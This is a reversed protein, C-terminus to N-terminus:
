SLGRLPMLDSTSRDNSSFLFFLASTHRFLSSPLPLVLYSDFSLLVLLVEDRFIFSFGLAVMSMWRSRSPMSVVRSNNQLCSYYTISNIPLRSSSSTLAQQSPAQDNITIGM